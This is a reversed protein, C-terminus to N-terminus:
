SRKAFVTDIFKLDEDMQQYGCESPVEVSIRPSLTIYAEKKLLNINKISSFNHQYIRIFYKSSRRTKKVNTFTIIYLM